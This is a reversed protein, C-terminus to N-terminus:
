QPKSTSVAMPVHMEQALLKKPICNYLQVGHQHSEDTKVKKWTLRSLSTLCQVEFRNAEATAPLPCALDLHTGKISPFTLIVRLYNISKMYAIMCRIHLCISLLVMTEMPNSIYCSTFGPDRVMGSVYCRFIPRELLFTTKWSGVM